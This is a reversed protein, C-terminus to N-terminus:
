SLHNHKLPKEKLGPAHGRKHKERVTKTLAYSAGEANVHQYKLVTLFVSHSLLYM